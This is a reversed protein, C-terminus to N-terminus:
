SRLVTTEHQQQPFDNQAYERLIEGPRASNPQSSEGRETQSEKPNQRDGTTARLRLGRVFAGSIRENADDVVDILVILPDLREPRAAVEAGPNGVILAARMINVAISVQHIARRLIQPQDTSFETDISHEVDAAIALLIPERDLRFHVRDPIAI